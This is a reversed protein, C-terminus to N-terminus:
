FKERNWVISKTKVTDLHALVKRPDIGNEGRLVIGCFMEFSDCFYGRYPVQLGWEAQERLHNVSHSTVPLKMEISWLRKQEDCFLIDGVGRTLGLSLRLGGQLKNDTEQFTAFLNQRLHPHYNKIYQICAAQLQGESKFSLKCVREYELQPDLIVPM